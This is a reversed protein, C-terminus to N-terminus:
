TFDGNPKHYGTDSLSGNLFRELRHWPQLALSSLGRAHSPHPCDEPNYHGGALSFPERETGACSSGSHLHFAFFHNQCVASSCSLGEVSAQVLIADGLDYFLVLGRIEPHLPCGQLNAFASPNAYRLTTTFFQCNAPIPPCYSSSADSSGSAKSHLPKASSVEELITEMFLM